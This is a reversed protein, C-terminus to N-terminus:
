HVLPFGSVTEAVIEQDVIFADFLGHAMANRIAGYGPGNTPFSKDVKVM